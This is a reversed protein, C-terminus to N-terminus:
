IDKGMARCVSKFFLDSEMETIMRLPPKLEGALVERIKMRLDAVDNYLYKADLIEPYSYKNPALPVVGCNIADQVQYGFTEEKSTILMVKSQHLFAYYDVWSEFRSEPHVVGFMRHISEEIYKTIKQKGFRAVSVVDHIREVEMYNSYFKNIPFPFVKLNKWGLKEAHYNTAVIIKDFMRSVALEQSYKKDRIRHFYDLRNKATAHCIALVKKPRKHYLINAFLGPFSIDNLLLTDNKNLDLQMFEEIQALELKIAQDTPSFDAIPYELDMQKLLCEYVYKEGLVIVQDFYKSFELPFM